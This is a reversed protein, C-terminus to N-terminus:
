KRCNRYYHNMISKWVSSQPDPRYIRKDKFHNKAQGSLRCGRKRKKRKDHLFVKIVCKPRQSHIKEWNQEVWQETYNLQKVADDADDYSINCSKIEVLWFINDDVCVIDCGENSYDKDFCIIKSFLKDNM